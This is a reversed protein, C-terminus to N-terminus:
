QLKFDWVISNNKTQYNMWEESLMAFLKRTDIHTTVLKVLDDKKSTKAKFKVGNTM